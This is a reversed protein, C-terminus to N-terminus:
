RGPQVVSPPIMPAHLTGGPVIKEEGPPLRQGLGLPLLRALAELPSELEPVPGIRHIAQRLGELPDPLVVGRDGHALRRERCISQLPQRQLGAILCSRKGEEVARDM